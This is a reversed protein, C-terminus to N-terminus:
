VVSDYKVSGGLVESKDRTAVSATGVVVEVVGSAAVVGEVM